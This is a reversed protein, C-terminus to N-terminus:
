MLYALVRLIKARQEPTFKPRVGASGTNSPSPESVGEQIEDLSQIATYQPVFDTPDFGTELLAGTWPDMLDHSAALDTPISPRTGASNWSTSCACLPHPDEGNQLLLVLMRRVHQRIVVREKHDFNSLNVRHMFAHLLHSPSSECFVGQGPRTGTRSGQANHTGFVKAKIGNRCLNALTRYRSNLCSILDQHPAVDVCLLDSFVIDPNEFALDEVGVPWSEHYLYFSGLPFAVLGVESSQWVKLRLVPNEFPDEQAKDICMRGIDELRKWSSEVESQSFRGGSTISVVDSPWLGQQRLVRRQKYIAQISQSSEAGCEILYKVLEVVSDTVAQDELPSEKPYIVREILSVGFRDIDWPSAKKDRFLQKVIKLQRLDCAKFIPSDDPIVNPFRKWSSYSPIGGYITTSQSMTKVTWLRSALWPSPVFKFFSRKVKKWPYEEDQDSQSFDDWRIITTTVKWEITGIWMSYSSCAREIRRDTPFDLPLTSVGIDEDTSTGLRYVAESSHDGSHPEQSGPHDLLAHTAPSSQTPETEVISQVFTSSTSLTKSILERKLEHIFNKLEDVDSGITEIRGASSSVTSSITDLTGEVRAAHDQHTVQFDRYYTLV